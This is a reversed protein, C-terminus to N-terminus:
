YWWDVQRKISEHERLADLGQAVVRINRFIENQAPMKLSNKLELIYFLFLL